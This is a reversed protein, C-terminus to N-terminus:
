NNHTGKESSWGWIRPNNNRGETVNQTTIEVKGKYNAKFDQDRLVIM